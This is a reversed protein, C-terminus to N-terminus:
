RNWTKQEHLQPEYMIQGENLSEAYNLNMVASANSKLLADSLSRESMLSLPILRRLILLIKHASSIWSNFNLAIM